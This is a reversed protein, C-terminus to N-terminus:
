DSRIVGVTVGRCRMPAGATRRLFSSAAPQLWSGRMHTGAARVCECVSPVIRVLAQNTWACETPIESEAWVNKFEDKYEPAALFFYKAFEEFLHGATPDGRENHPVLAAHVERWGSVGADLVEALKM